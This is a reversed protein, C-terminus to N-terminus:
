TVSLIMLTASVINVHINVHAFSNTRRLSLSRYLYFIHKRYLIFCLKTAFVHVDTMKIWKNVINIQKALTMTPKPQKLSYPGKFYSLDNSSLSVSM